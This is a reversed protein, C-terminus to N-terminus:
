IVRAARLGVLAAVGIGLYVIWKKADSTPGVAVKTSPQYVQQYQQATLPPRGSNILALNMKNYQQQAIVGLAAPLVSTFADVWGGGGSEGTQRTPSGSPTISFDILDSGEDGLGRFYGSEGEWRAPNDVSHHSDCYSRESEHKM